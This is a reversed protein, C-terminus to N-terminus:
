AAIRARRRATGTRYLIASQCLVMGSTKQVPSSLREPQQNTRMVERGGQTGPESLRFRPPIKGGAHIPTDGRLASPEVLPRYPLRIVRFDSVGSFFGM